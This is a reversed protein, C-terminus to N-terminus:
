PSRFTRHFLELIQALKKEREADGASTASALARELVATADAVHGQQALAVALNKLIGIASPDVELARRFHAIAEDFQGKGALLIGLNNHAEAHNPNLEAAKQYQIMAEDSRGMKALLLGLAYHIEARNPRLELARQYHTFAEDTRGMDDLLSGLNFEVEGQNPDIELAKLYHALAEDTRGKASLLSGLNNHTEAHHPDIELARQYHALAEDTRGIDEFLGGLNNETEASDPNLELAKQYHALAEDPRRMKALLLGLNNHAKALNPSLELAKQYHALAEDPRGIESLLLGVNNHAEVFDPNLELAKRYQVLAEDERKTKSLLIGLENHAMWSSDNRKITTRYLTEADSYMKSQKWSLTGLTLLLILSGATKLAGRGERASGLATGVSGVALVIPGIAALYQYHDAVYSYRFTYFSIFGLYPLLMVAFYFFAAAPARRVKRLAWLLGGVMLTAAPFLYQWWVAASLVWRPYSFMLNVPLFAKGLYFWVARGALLCREVLTLEFAREGSGIHTHEVHLVILGFLIGGLLFPLLPVIDRKWSLRGRKWWSVALMALPFTAITTKSLLGLLFLVLSWAYTRRNKSADYALYALAAALFFVGSLTNKLESIWAVSEVMVPHLAFISAALWPSPISLKRLIKVLILASSVHLLINLLHFDLTADGWLNSGVWFASHVLPFYQMTERSHTWIRALGDMSRLEPPTMHMNDDWVPTGNWAPQYVLFTAALLLGGCIFDRNWSSPLIQRM